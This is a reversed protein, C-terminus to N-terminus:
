GRDDGEQEEGGRRVHYPCCFAGPVRGPSRHERARRGPEPPLPDRLTDIEQPREDTPEWGVARWYPLDPLDALLGTEAHKMWPMHAM